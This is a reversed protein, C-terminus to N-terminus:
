IGSRKSWSPWSAPAPVPHTEGRVAGRRGRPHASRVHRANAMFAAAAGLEALVLGAIGPGVACSAFQQTMSLRIAGLMQPRPVLPIFFPQWVVTIMGNLLSSVVVLVLILGPSPHPGRAIAWLALAICLMGVNGILMLSRHSYRDTWSGAFPLILVMPFLTCFGGLGVWATSHTVHDLVYPVTVMQMWSGINSFFGASWFVAFTRHRLPALPGPPPALDARVAEREITM